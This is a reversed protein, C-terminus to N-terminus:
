CEGGAWMVVWRAKDSHQLSMPSISLPLFLPGLQMFLSGPLLVVWCRLVVFRQLQIKNLLVLAACPVRSLSLSERSRENQKEAANNPRTKCKTVKVGVFCSQERSTSQCLTAHLSLCCKMESDSKEKIYHKKCWSDSYPPQRKTMAWPSILTLKETSRFCPSFLSFLHM